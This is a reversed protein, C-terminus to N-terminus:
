CWPPATALVKGDATFDGQQLGDIVAVGMESVLFDDEGFTEGVRGWRADRAIDINPAFSWHAGNVRVERATEASSQKVLDLNWTSAMTIPSPYITAGEVLGNGHIADIGILLPIGLRSESAYQQLLNAEQPDTVHLFSGIKGARIVNPIQSSHLNPYMGFADGARMEELSLNKESKAIHKPGVFQSMQGIKEILTMRALLDEVRAENGLDPNKYPLVPQAFISGSLCTFLLSLSLLKKM